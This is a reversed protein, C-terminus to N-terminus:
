GQVRGEPADAATALVGVLVLGLLLVVEEVNESTNHLREFAVRAPDDLAATDIAGGAEIRYAEMRPIIGFQSVATLALMGVALVLAIRLNRRSFMAIRGGLLLFGVLLVGAVLGEYHLVRLCSGVIRGATHTDPALITFTLAAVVPFFIEAGIWVILCLSILTRLVTKM